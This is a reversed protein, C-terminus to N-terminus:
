IHQSLMKDNIYDFRKKTRKLWYSSLFPELLKKVLWKSKELLNLKYIIKEDKWPSKKYYKYWEKNDKNAQPHKWPSGLYDGAYHIVHIDKKAHNIEQATYYHSEDKGSFWICDSASYKRLLYVMGYKPSLTQIKGHFCINLLDQDHMYYYHKANRAQQILKEECGEARWRKLNVLMIGSQFYLDRESLGIAENYSEPWIDRVAAYIYGDEINTNYLETIDNVYITDCDIYIVKDVSKPLASGMFLRAFMYSIIGNRVIGPEKILATNDFKHMSDHIDILKIETDYQEELLRFRDQLDSKYGDGLVFFCFETEVNNELISVISVATQMAYASDATYCIYIM